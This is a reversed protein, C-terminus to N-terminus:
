RGQNYLQKVETASLARNYIRVDDLTAKAFGTINYDAGIYIPSTIDTNLVGGTGSHQSKLVGNIYIYSTPDNYMAVVHTWKDVPIPCTEDACAHDLSSGGTGSGGYRWQPRLSFFESSEIVFLRGSAGGFRTILHGVQTSNKIWFAITIGSAGEISDLASSDPINVFDDVGDFSLGQGIKGQAPSTTTSMSTMTGTNGNGSSDQTTNSGWNTKNGDFSWHGILGSTLFNRPTSAITVTKNGSLSNLVLAGSQYIQRIETATLARNYIRMDDISGSWTGDGQDNIAGITNLTGISNTNTTTSVSSGNAYLTIGNGNWVYCVHAWTGNRFIGSTTQGGYYNGGHRYSVFFSGSNVVSGMRIGNNVNTYLNLFTQDLGAPAVTLDNTNVWACVSSPDSVTSIPNSVLSISDFGGDFFVAQAKKGAVQNTGVSMSVLTGTNGNGSTDSITQESWNISKLDFTWYALLGTSPVPQISTNANVTEQCFLISAFIFIPLISNKFVNRKM